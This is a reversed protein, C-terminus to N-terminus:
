RRARKKKFKVIVTGSTTRGAKPKSSSFRGKGRIRYKCGARKLKRRAKKVNLGKLKPV